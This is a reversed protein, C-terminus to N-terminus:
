NYFLSVTKPIRMDHLRQTLPVDNLIFRANYFDENTLFDCYVNIFIIFLLLILNKNFYSITSYM